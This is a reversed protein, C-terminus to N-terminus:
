IIALIFKLYLKRFFNADSYILQVLKSIFDHANQIESESPTANSFRCKLATQTLSSFSGCSYNQKILAIDTEQAFNLQTSNGIDLGILKLLLIAFNYINIISNRKNADNLKKFRYILMLKRRVFIIIASLILIISFILLLATSNSIDHKKTINHMVSKSKSSSPTTTKSSKDSSKASVSSNIVSSKTMSSTASTIKVTTTKTGSSTTAPQSTTTQESKNNISNDSFGATFEFPIWGYGDIYVETWAHSRTDKVNITFSGDPNATKDNFDDTVIIYGSAYRAPIGALRALMVGATAFHVCYGKHSELLFYNVFDRNAPTKGPSLTYESNEAMRERIKKLLEIKDQATDSPNQQIIDSYASYVGNFASNKPVNLYNKYVFDRYNNEILSISLQNNNNCLAEESFASNLDISSNSSNFKGFSQALKQVTSYSNDQSLNDTFINLNQPSNFFDICSDAPSSSITFKYKDTSSFKCLTDKEFQLGDEGCIGYPIYNKRKKRKSTVSVNVSDNLGAYNNFISPFLQPYAAYTNINNFIDSYKNYVSNDFEAWANDKYVSGVYSKLYVANPVVSSFTVALEDSNKYKITDQRGLRHDEYDLTIGLADTIGSVSTELDEVTFSAVADKLNIRKENINNSRKYGTLNIAILSFLAILAISAIIELACKETVKFKMNRKPFFLNDKRTFNGKGGYYEGLDCNCMALVALWYAVLLAGWFPSLNIGYYLGIEIIPFTIIIIIIPNPKYITFFFIAFSIFWICFFLFVTINDYQSYHSLDRFYSIDTVNTIKYIKNFTFKLGIVFQSFKLYFSIAFAIGSIPIIWLAKGKILSVASYMISFFSTSIIILGLNFNLTFMSFFSFLTSLFGISAILFAYLNRMSHTKREVSFKISDNIVIGSFDSIKNKKM